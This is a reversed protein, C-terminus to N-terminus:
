GRALQALDQELRRLEQRAYRLEGETEAIYNEDYKTRAQLEAIQNDRSWLQAREADLAAQVVALQQKLEREGQEYAACRQEASHRLARETQVFTLVRQELDDDDALSLGGALVGVRPGVVRRRRPTPSRSVTRM